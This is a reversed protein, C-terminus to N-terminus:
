QSSTSVREKAQQLRSELDAVLEPHLESVDYQEAPDVELDFLQSHTEGQNLDNEDSSESIRLKWKGFRIAELWPGQFYLFEREPWSKVGNLYPILDIGDLVLDPPLEAGGVNALTVFVDMTTGMERCTHGEPVHGPWKIIGPVRFGGEYSTGKSGRLLGPSGAHWPMVIDEKFMRPPMNLWPGNDSSFVVITNDTLGLEELTNLIEGTSWDITEIVDGYL